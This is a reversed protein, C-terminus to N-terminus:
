DDGEQTTAVDDCPLFGRYVSRGLKKDVATWLLESEEAKALLGQFHNIEASLFDAHHLAFANITKPPQPSGWEEIGHHSLIMHLLEQKLAPPFGPHRTIKEEVLKAGLVLHGFLKGADTLSVALDQWQYELIKGCDHVLAGTLLLDRNIYEPYRAAIASAFAFTELTHELLGGLYAHHISKAAPAETFAQYFFQDGFLDDLLVRLPKLQVQDIAMGLERQMDQQSRPAQPLFYAPNVRGKTIELRDVIVQMEGRYQGVSGQIRVVANGKLQPFVREGGEWMIAPLSGSCDSLTLRMFSGNKGSGPRFPILTADTAVFYDDIKERLQLQRIYHKKKLKEEM